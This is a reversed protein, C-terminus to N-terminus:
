RALKRFILFTLFNSNKGQFFFSGSLSRGTAGCKIKWGASALARCWLRNYSGDRVLKATGSRLADALCKMDEGEKMDLNDWIWLEGWELLIERVTTAKPPPRYTFGLPEANRLIIRGNRLKTTVCWQLGAPMMQQVASRRLVQGDRTPRSNGQNDYVDM